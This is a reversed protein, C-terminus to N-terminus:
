ILANKILVVELLIKQHIKTSYIECKEKKMGMLPFQREKQIAFHNGPLM